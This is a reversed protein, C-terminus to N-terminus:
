TTEGTILRLVNATQRTINGTPTPHEDLWREQTLWTAPHPIYKPETNALEARQQHLATTLTHASTKTLAQRYATRARGKGIKRPYATWWTEFEHAHVDATHVDADTRVPRQKNPPEVSPEKITRPTRSSLPPTDKLVPTTTDQPVPTDKLVPTDQPVPTILYMNSRGPRNVVQVQGDHQLDRIRKQVARVQIGCKAAVRELSPWCRGDDDAHDALALLVLKHSTTRATADWVQSM